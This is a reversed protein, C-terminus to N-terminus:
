SRPAVFLQNPVLVDTQRAATTADDEALDHSFRYPGLQFAMIASVVGLMAFGILAASYSGTLDFSLSGLSVGIASGIVFGAWVAAVARRLSRPGFYRSSMYSILDAESGIGLGIMVIGVLVLPGTGGFLLAVCGAAIVLYIPSAIYRVHVRDLLLGLGARTFWSALGVFGLMSAAVGTTIGRDTLLPVLNTISGILAMSTLFAPFTILWFSRERAIEPFSADVDDHRKPPLPPVRFFLILTAVAVVGITTGIGVYAGRWGYNNLLWNAYNSMFIGGFGTGSCALALALGRNRDFWGSIAISYPMMTGAPSCFGTLGFVLCFLAISNPLLGITGVFIAYAAVIMITTLRVSFRSMISGLFFYGLAAGVFYCSISITTSSRDWAYEAAIAKTFIGFVYSAIVPAGVANGLVGAVVTWWRNIPKNFVEGGKKDKL